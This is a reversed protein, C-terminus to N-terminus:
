LRNGNWMWHLQQHSYHLLILLELSGLHIAISVKVSIKVIDLIQLYIYIYPPAM